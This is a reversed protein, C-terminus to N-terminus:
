EEGGEEGEITFMPNAYGIFSFQLNNNLPMFREGPYIEKKGSETKVCGTLKPFKMFVRAVCWKMYYPKNM